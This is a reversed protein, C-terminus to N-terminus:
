QRFCVMGFFDPFQNIGMCRKNCAFILWQFFTVANVLSVFIGHQCCRMRGYEPSIIEVRFGIGVQQFAAKLDRGMAWAGTGPPFGPAGEYDLARSLATQAAWALQELEERSLAAIQERVTPM